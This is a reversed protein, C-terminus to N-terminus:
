QLGGTVSRNMATALLEAKQEYAGYLYEQAMQNDPQERVSKECVAIFNDVIGLNRRLSDTVAADRKEMGPILDAEVKTAEETFMNEASLVLSKEQQPALPSHVAIQLSGTQYGVLAAAALILSLFAGGMAPRQFATWWGGQISPASVAPEHILREAELQTRLSIWVREPIELEEAGLELAANHIASFDAALSRCDECVDMHALAPMPLPSSDQEELIKEFQECQM